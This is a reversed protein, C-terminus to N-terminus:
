DAVEIEFEFPEVAKGADFDRIFAIAPGPLPAVLGFNFDFIQSETVRWGFHKRRVANAIPCNCSPTYDKARTDAGDIDAQTVKITETAM